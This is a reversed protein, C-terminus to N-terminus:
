VHLGRPTTLRGILVFSLDLLLAVVVIGLVGSLAENLANAGGIRALGRFILEGLGPGRVAAGIAAIAVLMITSVRIGNLIVPWALPLRVMRLRQGSRMGMGKAADVVAPTVTELGTVTNRLIPFIAYVTLAVVAPGLGLGLVPVLLGFLAFSPMTLLVGTTSLLWSRLRPARETALALGVGIATAVAVSLLVLQVHQAALFMIRHANRLVYEHFPM